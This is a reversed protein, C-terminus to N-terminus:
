LNDEIWKDLEVTEIDKGKQIDFTTILKIVEGRTYMKAQHITVTNDPRLKLRYYNQDQNPQYWEMELAVETIPKGENYAKIYAQIFSEPMQPLLKYEPKYENWGGDDASKWGSDGIVIKLSKDTTAIIKKSGSLEDLERIAQYIGKSPHIAWDGEKIEDDSLFYLHQAQRNRTYSGVDPYSNYELLKKSNILSINSAKETPLMVVKVTKEM